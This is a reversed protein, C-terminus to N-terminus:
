KLSRLYSATAPAYSFIDATRVQCMEAAVRVVAFHHVTHSAVFLLERRLTSTMQVVQQSMVSNESRITVTNDLQIDPLTLLWHRIQALENLCTERCHEVRAGRRRIDYDIVAHDPSCTMLAFYQDIIHRLHAGISSQVYPKAIHQYQQPNLQKILTIAQDIGELNGTIFAAETPAIATMTESM